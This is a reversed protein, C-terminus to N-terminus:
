SPVRKWDKVELIVWCLKAECLRKFIVIHLEDFLPCLCNYLWVTVFMPSFYKIVHHVDLSCQVHVCIIICPVNCFWNGLSLNVNCLTTHFNYLIMARQIWLDKSTYYSQFESTQEEQSPGAWVPQIEGCIYGNEMQHGPPQNLHSRSLFYKNRSLWTFGWCVDEMLLKSSYVTLFQGWRQLNYRKIRRKATKIWGM